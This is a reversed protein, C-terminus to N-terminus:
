QLKYFPITVTFKTTEDSEVHITGELNQVITQVHSLGIGTSPEGKHNFKSTFGPDFIVPIFKKPIGEGNDEVRITTLDDTTDISIHIQGENEIAEVANSVLNNVLALFPIHQRTSFDKNYSITINIKKNLLTSYKANADKVYHLLNSILRSDLHKLNTLKSLGAYIRQGDKKIEHIEQAISLAKISLSPQTEKLQDYLDYSNATIKEIENLSKNLYLTEVYLNSILNLLQQVQKKQEAVTISSYIGVVFFSRIFAVLLLLLLEELSFPIKTNVIISTTIQEILNSLLECFTVITALLFPKSKFDNIRIVMLFFAFSIYFLSAPVHEIVSSLFSDGFLLVNLFTRFLVVVMGTIMGAPILPLPRILISLLFIVTGLGFRFPAGEYPIVKVESAIATLIAIAFILLYHNRQQHSKKQNAQEM